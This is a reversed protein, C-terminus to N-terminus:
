LGFSDSSLGRSSRFIDFTRGAHVNIRDPVLEHSFDLVYLDFRTRGQLPDHYLSFNGNMETARSDSVYSANMFEYIPFEASGTNDRRRQMATESSLRLLDGRADKAIVSGAFLLGGIAIIRASAARLM